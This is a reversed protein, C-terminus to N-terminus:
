VLMGYSREFQLDPSGALTDNVKRGAAARREQFAAGSFSAFSTSQHTKIPSDYSKLRQLYLTPKSMDIKDDTFASYSPRLNNAHPDSEVSIPFASRDEDL